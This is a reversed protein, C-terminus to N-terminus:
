RWVNTWSCQHYGKEAIEAREAVKCLGPIDRYEGEGFKEFLWKAENITQLIREVSQEIEEIDKLM